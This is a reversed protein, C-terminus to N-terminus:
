LTGRPAWPHWPHWPEQSRRRRRAPSAAAPGGTGPAPHKWSKKLALNAKMARLCMRKMELHQRDTFYNHEHGEDIQDLAEGLSGRAWNLFKAFEAHGYRYFGESTLYCASRASRRLQRRYDCDHAAPGSRVHTLVMRRLDSCRQWPYSGHADRSAYPAVFCLLPRAYESFCEFTTARMRDSEVRGSGRARAIEALVLGAGSPVRYCGIAGLPM